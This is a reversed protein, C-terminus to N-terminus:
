SQVENLLVRVAAESLNMREAIEANSEGANWLAKARETQTKRKDARAKALIHRVKSPSLRHKTAIQVDTLGNDKDRLLKEALNEDPPFLYDEIVKVIVDRLLPRVIKKIFPLVYFYMFFRGLLRYFV